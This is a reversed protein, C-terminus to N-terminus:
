LRVAWGLQRALWILASLALSAAYLVAATEPTM